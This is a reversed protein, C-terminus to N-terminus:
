HYLMVPVKSGRLVDRTTSGFFSERLGSHGYAGMVVLAAHYESAHQLLVAAPDLRTEVPKAKVTVGHLALYAVAREAISAAEDYHEGITVVVNEHRAALGTSVYASLTRAAELSGDYGIVTTTGDGLEAPVAIVPRPPSHLVRDLTDCSVGGLTARFHTELGILIIDYRQAQALIAGPPDGVERIVRATVGAEECRMMFKAVFEDARLKAEAIKKDDPFMRHLGSGGPVAAPATLNPRDIVTQGALVAGCGGAWRLGLTVASDSFASGDLGVLIGRLMTERRPRHLSAPWRPNYSGFILNVRVKRSQVALTPLTDTQPRAKEEVM